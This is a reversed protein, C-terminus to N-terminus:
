ISSQLHFMKADVQLENKGSGKEVRCKKNPCIWQKTM